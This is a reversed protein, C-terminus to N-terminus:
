RRLARSCTGAAVRGIRLHPDVDADPPAQQREDLAAAAAGLQQVHQQKRQRARRDDVVAVLDPHAVVDVEAIAVADPRRHLPAAIAVAAERAGIRRPEVRRRDHIRDVAELRDVDFRLLAERERQEVPHLPQHRHALLVADEAASRELEDIRGVALHEGVQAAVCVFRDEDDGVQRAAELGDFQIQARVGAQDRDLHGADGLERPDGLPRVKEGQVRVARVPEGQLM